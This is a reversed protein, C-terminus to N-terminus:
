GRRRSKPRVKTAATGHNFRFVKKFIKEAGSLRRIARSLARGNAYNMRRYRPRDEDDSAGTMRNILRRAGSQLMPDLIGPNRNIVGAGGGRGLSGLVGGQFSSTLVPLSTAAANVRRAGGGGSGFAQKMAWKAAKGGLKVALGALIGPM